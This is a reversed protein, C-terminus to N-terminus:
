FCLGLKISIAHHRLKEAFEKAFYNDSHKKLRQLKQLEYGVALQLKMGNKLPYQIGVSPYIFLGGNVENDPAFSYGMGFETYPTIMRARGIQYKVDAYLPILLKEYFSLGTGAGVLWRETLHYYGSLQWSFLTYSPAGITIGTGATTAFSIKNGDQATASVLSFSCLWVFLIKKM